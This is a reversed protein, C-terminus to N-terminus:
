PPLIMWRLIRRYKFSSSHCAPCRSIEYVPIKHESEDNMHIMELVVPSKGKYGLWAQNEFWVGIELGSKSEIM